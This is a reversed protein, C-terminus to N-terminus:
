SVFFVKRNFKRFKKLTKYILSLFCLSLSSYWSRAPEAQLTRIKWGSFRIQVPITLVKAFNIKSVEGFKKTVFLKKRRLTGAITQQIRYEFKIKIIFKYKKIIYNIFKSKKRLKLKGLFHKLFNVYKLTIYNNM